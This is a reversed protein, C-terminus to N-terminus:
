SWDLDCELESNPALTGGSKICLGWIKESCSGDQYCCAYTDECFGDQCSVNDGIYIGPPVNNVCFTGTHTDDCTTGFCCAGTAQARVDPTCLLLLMACVAIHTGASSVSTPHVFRGVFGNLWHGFGMMWGVNWKM